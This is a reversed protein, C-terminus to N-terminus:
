SGRRATLLTQPRDPIDEVALDGFGAAALWGALEDESHTDGDGALLMQVAFVPAVANRGRLTTSIALVGGPAMAAAIRGFLRELAPGPYIHVVGAALVVDFPGDALAELFDGEVVEVGTGALHGSGALWDTVPGRDQLVVELGREALARAHEGHGGGLDLARAAAPARALVRDALWPAAERARRALAPMFVSPPLSAGGDNGAVDAGGDAGPEDDHGRDAGQQGPDGADRGGGADGAEGNPALAGGLDNAWRRIVNAHHALAAREEADFAVVAHYTGGRHEVLGFTALAELTVRVAHPRAGVAEAADDPAGPLAELLGTSAAADCLLVERWDAVAGPDAMFSSVPSPDPM